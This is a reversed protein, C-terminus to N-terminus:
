QLSRFEMFDVYAQKLAVHTKRQVYVTERLHLRRVCARDLGVMKGLQRYSPFFPILDDVIRHCEDLRESAEKQRKASRQAISRDIRKQYEEESLRFVRRRSDDKHCEKCLQKVGGLGRTSPYFDTLPMWVRCKSCRKSDGKFDAARRQKGTEGRTKRKREAQKKSQCSKCGARVGGLGRPDPYFHELRKRRHCVTCTKSVGDFDKRREEHREEHVKKSWERRKALTSSSLQRKPKSPSEDTM